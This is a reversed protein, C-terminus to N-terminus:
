EVYELQIITDDLWDVMGWRANYQEGLHIQRMKAAFEDLEMTNARDHRNRFWSWGRVGWRYLARWGRVIAIVALIHILVLFFVTGCSSM